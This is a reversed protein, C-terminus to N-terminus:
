CTAVFPGNIKETEATLASYFSRDFKEGEQTLPDSPSKNRSVAV